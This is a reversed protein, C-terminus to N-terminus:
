FFTITGERFDCVNSVTLQEALSGLFILERGWMICTPHLILCYGGCYDVFSCCANFCYEGNVEQSIFTEFAGYFKCFVEKTM